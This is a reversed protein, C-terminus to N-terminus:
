CRTAETHLLTPYWCRTPLYCTVNMNVNVTVFLIVAKRGIPVTTVVIQEVSAIGDYWPIRYGLEASLGPQCSALMMGCTKTPLYEINSTWTEIAKM